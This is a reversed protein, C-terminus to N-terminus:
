PLILSSEFYEILPVIQLIRVLEYVKIQELLDRFVAYPNSFFDRLPFCTHQQMDKFVTHVKVPHQM